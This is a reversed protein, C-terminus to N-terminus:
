FAWGASIRFTHAQEDLTGRQAVGEENNFALGLSRTTLDYTVDVLLGKFPLLSVGAAFNHNTVGSVFFSTGDLTATGPGTLNYDVHPRVMPIITYAVGLGYRASHLGLTEFRPERAGTAESYLRRFVVVDQFEYGIRITIDLPGKDKLLAFRAQFDATLFSMGDCFHTDCHGDGDGSAAEFDTQYALRSYTVRPGISLWGMADNLPYVEGGLTMSGPIPMAGTGGSGRIQVKLFDYDDLASAEPEDCGTDGVCPHSNYTYAGPAWGIWLRAMRHKSRADGDPTVTAAAKPKKPKKPPKTGGGGTAAAVQEGVPIKAFGAIDGAPRTATVQVQPRGLNPPISLTASLTGDGNDTKNTIQGGDAILIVAEGPVLIGSADTVKVLISVSGGTEPVSAPIASVVIATPAGAIGVSGGDQGVTSSGDDTTTGAGGWLSGGGSTDIPEVVAVPAPTSGLDVFGRLKRWKALTKGQKQGGSVPFEFGELPESTQWLPATYTVDGTTFVVGAMGALPGAQYLVTGMGRADTQVSGTISGGGGSAACNVPVDAVPNGYRDLSLVTIPVKQGTMVADNLPLAVLQTVAQRNGRIAAIAQARSRVNWQVPLTASFINQGDAKPNTVPGEATRFEVMHKGGSPQGDDGLLRATLITSTDNPTLQDPAAILALAAPPAPELGIEVSDTSSAEEGALTATVTATGAADLKPPIFTAEYHGNGVFRAEGIQGGTASLAINQGDAPRGRKDVVFMHVRTQRQGDAPVFTPVGGIAIRNFPPVQLDINQTAKAGNPQILEVSASTIGPPVTIPVKARGSADSVVPPFTRDGVKFVLTVGADRADVPYDVKGVLAVRFFGFVKGPNQADWISIIAVQPFPTTPPVFVASWTGPAAETLTQVQGVNSAARLDLGQLPSGGEDVVNFVLASSPDQTLIIEAPTASFTIRARSEAVIKVPFTAELNNGNALRAKFKLEASPVARDPTVYGCNYLGPGVQPCDQDLRGVSSASGRFRAGNALAGNEDTVLVTLSIRKGDATIDGPPILNITAASGLTLTPINQAGAPLGPLVLLAFALLALTRRLM